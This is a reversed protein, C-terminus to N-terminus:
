RSPRLIRLHAATPMWGQQGESSHPPLRCRCESCPALQQCSRRARACPRAFGRPAEAPGVRLSRTCSIFVAVGPRVSVCCLFTATDNLHPPRPRPWPSLCPTASELLPGPHRLRGCACLCLRGRLCVKPAREGLADGGAGGPVQRQQRHHLRRQSRQAVHQVVAGVLLQQLLHPPRAPRAANLPHTARPHSTAHPPHTKPRRNLSVLRSKLGGISRDPLRRSRGGGGGRGQEHARLARQQRLRAQREVKHARQQIVACLVDGRYLHPARGRPALGAASCRAAAKRRPRATHAAGRAEAGAGARRGGMRTGARAAGGRRRRTGLHRRRPARHNFVRGRQRQKKIDVALGRRGEAAVRELAQHAGGSAGAARGRAQGGRM